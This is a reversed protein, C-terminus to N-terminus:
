LSYTKCSNSMSTKVANLFTDTLVIFISPRVQPYISMPLVLPLFFTSRNILFMNLILMYSIWLCALVALFCSVLGCELAYRCHTYNLRWHQQRAPLLTMRLAKLDLSTSLVRHIPPIKNERKLLITSCLFKNTGHLLCRPFCVSEEQATKRPHRM